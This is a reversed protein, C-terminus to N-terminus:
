NKLELRYKGEPLMTLTNEATDCIRNGRQDILVGDTSEGKIRKRYLYIKM